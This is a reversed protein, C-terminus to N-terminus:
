RPAATVGGREKKQLIRFCLLASKTGSAELTFLLPTPSHENYKSTHPVCRVPHFSQDLISTRHRIFAGM